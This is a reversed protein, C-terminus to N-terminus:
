KDKEIDCDFCQQMLYRSANFVIQTQIQLYQDYFDAKSDHMELLGLDVIRLNPKNNQTIIVVNDLIPDTLNLIFSNISNVFGQFGLFDLSCREKKLMQRNQQIIQNFLPRIEEFNKTSVPVISDLRPQLMCYSDEYVPIRTDCHFNPFYEKVLSNYKQLDNPRRNERGIILKPIKIVQSTGYEFVLHEFGETIFKGIKQYDVDNFQNIFQKIDTKKAKVLPTTIIYKIAM